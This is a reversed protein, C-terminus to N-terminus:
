FLTKKRSICNVLYAGIKMQIINQVLYTWGRIHFTKQKNEIYIIGATLEIVIDIDGLLWCTVKLIDVIPRLINLKGSDPLFFINSAHKM